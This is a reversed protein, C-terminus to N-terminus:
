LCDVPATSWGCGPVWLFATAPIKVSLMCWFTTRDRNLSAYLRKNQPCVIWLCTADLLDLVDFAAEDHALRPDFDLQSEASRTLLVIGLELLIGSSSEPSSLTLRSPGLFAEVSEIVVCM